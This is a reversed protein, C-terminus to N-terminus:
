ASPIHDVENAAAETKPGSMPPGSMSLKPQGDINKIFTGIPITPIMIAIRKILSDTESTFDVDNSQNPAITRPPASELKTSTRSLPSSQPHSEM